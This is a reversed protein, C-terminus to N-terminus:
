QITVNLRYFQRAPGIPVSISIDANHGALDAAGAVPQWAAPDAPNASAEVVYKRGGCGFFRLTLNSNGAAPTIALPQPTFVRPDTGMVYEQLNTLGDGDADLNDAALGAAIEDPTFNRAQWAALSEVGIVLTDSATGAYNPDNVTAAVAYSGAAIPGTAAGDYTLAVTLDPPTTTASATKPSGDYTQALNGLLISATAKLITGTTFNQLTVAYNAGSNGDDIVISPVLVKNATGADKTLFAQSLTTSTDGSALDPTLTPTGGASTGGDYTKSAMVAAVTLPLPQITGTTLPLLTVNYNNGGNGDNIAISPVLVKNATGAHKTQFAQSLATTTDGSALGPALSPVGAASTGGDYTKTALVAAVTLPLRSITGGTQNVPTVVYNAGGNGDAITIFPVIVKNGSGADRIQFAQGLATTSDGGVLGPAVSPTGAASTTGDYIKSAVVATLTLPLPNITGSANIYTYSYNNGGNGDSVAGAPTVTAGNAATANRSAFVQTWAAATDGPRISGSSLSPTGAAGTTGDYTKTSTTATLTLPATSITGSASAYTYSYNNGSNGDSVAAAVPTLTAGNVATANRSAFVQTWGPATDGAQIAGSTLTPTGTATTTGDYTKTASVATVTLPLALITASGSAGALTYDSATTGGLVLSGSLSASQPKFTAIAGSWQPTAPAPRLALLIGGNRQSASLTVAGAGTTGAAAKAAWAVGVSGATAQHNDAIEALTQPGSAITWNGSTAWGATGGAMGCMIVAANASVTTLASATVSTSGSTNVTMAVPTVDFPGGATGDQKVGGTPDVNSFAVIDGVASTTTGLAFTYSSGDTGDAVRYMVSGYTLTSTTRLAAQSIVTWGSPATLATTSGIKALVAIMVDGAVVGTPKNITVSGATTINATTATGRQVITGAAGGGTITGGSAATGTAGPLKELAVVKANSAATANSSQANAVSTFANLPTGLTATSGDLGIGGIWLENAQATTATTGTVASNSNGSSNATQDAAASGLVGAYEALVASAFVASALQITVSTGASQLNSAYWIETTTGATGVSQAARTWLAGGSQVIGTVAGASTSRTSIIAVLTDGSAPPPVTVSFSTAASAGTSGTAYTGVRAPAVPNNSVCAQVGANRGALTTSGSALSVDDAGVKNAITLSANGIATTGDYNRSGGLALPKPAITAAAQLAYNSAQAGSLSVGNYTVTTATAVDKSNYTGTGASSGSVSVTDGTYPKGDFASGAGAAEAALLGAATGTVTATTNGDYPKSPAVALGSVLLGKATVTQTLGTQQTLTYDGAQAGAPTSGIITVARAGVDKAALTGVPTGGVSIDDGAYPKGDLTTGSGAPEAAQLVAAGGLLATLSGDYVKPAAALGSVTLAKATITANAVTPQASLIYNGSNAGSLGYGTATVAQSGADAGALTGSGATVNVVEAGVVGSVTGGTLAVATTKDYVKGSATVGAITVPKATVAYSYAPSASATFSGSGGYNATVLHTGLALRSASTTFTAQGAALTVTGLTTAGDKFVVSGPAAPSVTATFAVATGYPGTAAPSSTLTTATSGGVTVLVTDSATAGLFDTVTVTYNTTSAPSATPNSVTASSLGTSPSWSYTYPATGGSAVPSGGIPVPTGTQDSGANAALVTSAQKYLQLGSIETYDSDQAGNFSVVITIKGAGDAVETTTLITPIGTHPTGGNTTIVTKSSGTNFIALSYNALATLGTFQFTEVGAGSVWLREPDDASLVVGTVTPASGVQFGAYGTRSFVLGVGTTAGAGNKLSSLTIPLSASGVLSNWAGSQGTFLSGAVDGSMPVSTSTVVDVSVLNAPISVLTQTTFTWVSGTSTGSANKAVVQWSYNTAGLLTAQPVYSSVVVNATPTAPKGQATQWLYVDYSTAGTVDAWDLATNVAVATAGVAPMPTGPLPMQVATVTLTVLAQQDSSIGDSVAYTFTDTGVYGGSPTYTFGGNSNLVLTGHQVNVAVSASLTSGSPNIDNALVGPAAIVSAVASVTYSDPVAVVPVTGTFSNYSMNGQTDVAMVNFPSTGLDLRAQGAHKSYTLVNSASLNSHQDAATEPIYYQFVALPYVSTATLYEPGTAVGVTTNAYVQPDASMLYRNWSALDRQPGLTGASSEGHPAPNSASYTLTFYQSIDYGGGGMVNYASTDHWISHICHCIEHITVGCYEAYNLANDNGLQTSLLKTMMQTADAPHFDTYAGVYAQDGGGLANFAVSSFIINKHFGDKYAAPLQSYVQDYMGVGLATAQARTQTVVLKEVDVNSSADLTPYFTLRGHGARMQDEAMWSQMLKAQLSFHTAYLPDVPSNAEDSPVVYWVQFRYNPSTPPTFVLNLTVAGHGDTITLTNTGPRLDVLCRFRTGYKTFSLAASVPAATITLTSGGDFSGDVLLMSYRFVQSDTVNTFQVTSTGTHFGWQPGSTSGNSNTAVVQWNYNVGNTLTPPTWQSVTVTANPTAPKSGSALWLYM